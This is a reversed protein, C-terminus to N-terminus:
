NQKSPNHIIQTTQKSQIFEQQLTELNHHNLVQETTLKKVDQLWFCFDFDTLQLGINIWDRTQEYTFGLNQWDQILKETFDSHINTWFVTNLETVHSQQEILEETKGLQGLLYNNNAMEIQLQQDQKQLRQNNKELSGIETEM